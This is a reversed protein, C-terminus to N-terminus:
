CNLARFGLGQRVQSPTDVDALAALGKLLQVAEQSRGTTPAESAALATDQQLVLTLLTAGAHRRAQGCAAEDRRVHGREPELGGSHRACRPGCRRPRAAPDSQM